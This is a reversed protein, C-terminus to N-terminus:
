TRSSCNETVSRKEWGDSTTGDRRNRVAASRSTPGSPRHGKVAGDHQPSSLRESHLISNPELCPSQRRHARAHRRSLACSAFQYVRNAEGQENPVAVTQFDLYDAAVSKPEKVHRWLDAPVLRESREPEALRYREPRVLTQATPLYTPSRGEVSSGTTLTREDSCCRAASKLVWWRLFRTRRSATASCPSRIAAARRWSSSALASASATGMPSAGRATCAQLVCSTIKRSGRSGPMTGPPKECASTVWMGLGLPISSTWTSITLRSM